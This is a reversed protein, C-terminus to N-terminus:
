VECAKFAHELAAAPDGKPIFEQGIFGKYGTDAIARAIAPITCRKALGICSINSGICTIINAM